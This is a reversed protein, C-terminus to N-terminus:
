HNVTSYTLRAGDNRGTQTSTVLTFGLAKLTERRSLTNLGDTTPLTLSGSYVEHVADAPNYKGMIDPHLCLSRDYHYHHYYYVAHSTFMGCKNALARNYACSAKIFALAQTENNFYYTPPNGVDFVLVRYVDYFAIPM